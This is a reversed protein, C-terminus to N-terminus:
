KEQNLQYDRIYTDSLAALQNMIMDRTKNLENIQVETLLLQNQANIVFQLTSSRGQRFKITELKILTESLGKSELLIEKQVKVTSLQNVYTM